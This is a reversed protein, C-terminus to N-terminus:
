KQLFYKQEYLIDYSIDKVNAVIAFDINLRNVRSNENKDFIVFWYKNRDRIVIRAQYIRDIDIDIFKIYLKSYNKMDNKIIKNAVFFILIFHKNSKIIISIMLSSILYTMNEDFYNILFKIIKYNIVKKIVENTSLQWIVLFKIIKYDTVKKIVENTSLKELSKVIKNRIISIIDFENIDLFNKKSKEIANEITQRREVRDKKSQEVQKEIVRM